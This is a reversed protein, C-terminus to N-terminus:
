QYFVHQAELNLTYKEEFGIPHYSMKSTRLGEIGLDTERNIIRVSDPLNNATAWNLLQYIGKIARDGKELNIVWCEDNVPSAVSFGAIQGSITVVIIRGGIKDILPLMRKAALYELRFTIDESPNEAYWKELYAFLPSVNDQFIQIKLREDQMLRNVFNKKQHFRRGALESLDTRLYLYDFDNRQEIIQSPKIVLSIQDCIKKPVFHFAHLFNESTLKKLPVSIDGEGIPPFFIATKEPGEVSIIYFGDLESITPPEDIYWGLLNYIAFDSANVAQRSLINRIIEIHDLSLLEKSPFKM